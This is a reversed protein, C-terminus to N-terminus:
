RCCMIIPRIGGYIYLCQVGYIYCWRGKSDVGLRHPRSRRRRKTGWVRGKSSQGHMHREFKFFFFFSFVIINLSNILEAAFCLSQPNNLYIYYRDPRQVDIHLQSSGHMKIPQHWLM